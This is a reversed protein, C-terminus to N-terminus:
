PLGAPDEGPIFRGVDPYVGALFGDLRETAVEVSEGPLVPTYARVVAGDTRNRTISDVFLYWKVSYQENLIRGRGEFWYYLLLKVQGEQVLLRTVPLTQGGSGVPVPHISKELIRWGTGPLCNAPSHASGGVRQSEYYAIYFDVPAVTGPRMYRASWYDHLNLVKLVEPTLKQPTGNWEGVTTPFSSLPPHPPRIDSYGSSQWVWVAGALLTAVVTVAVMRVSGGLRGSFFPAAPLYLYQLRYEGRRGIRRLCEAFGLLVAVCLVFIAWGEVDHALGTLLGDAGLFQVLVAIWALRFANMGIALPIAFFFILTRKWLRDRLFFAVLFSFSLLPFIYRLGSCADVVQLRVAGLDLVNGEQFVPIGLLNILFVGWDSSILQLKAALTVFLLQPIPLAFVLYVFAPLLVRFARTGFAGIAIGALCAVLGYFAPIEFSSTRAVFLFFFGAALFVAGWLSPSPRPTRESLLHLGMWLALPVILYGQSYEELEWAKLLSGIEPLFTYGVSALCLGVLAWLVGPSGLAGRHQVARNSFVM